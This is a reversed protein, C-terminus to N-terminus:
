LASNAGDLCGDSESGRSKHGSLTSPIAVVLVSIAVDSICISSIRDSQLTDYKLYM